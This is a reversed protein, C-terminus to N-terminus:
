MPMVTSTLAAEISREIPLAFRTMSLLGLHLPKGAFRREDGAAAGDAPRDAAAEGFFTRLNQNGVLVPVGRVGGGRFEVALRQHEVDRVVGQALVDEASFRDVNEDVVGAPVAELVEGVGPGLLPLRQDRDVQPGSLM